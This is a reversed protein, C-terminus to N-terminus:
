VENKDIKKINTQKQKMLYVYLNTNKWIEKGDNKQQRKEEDEDEDWENMWRDLQMSNWERMENLCLMQKENQLKWM